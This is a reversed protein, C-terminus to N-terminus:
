SERRKRKLLDREVYQPSAILFSVIKYHKNRRALDLPTHGTQSQIYRTMGVIYECLNLYGLSAAFHLPTVGDYSVPNKDEIKEAIYTYVSLQGKSAAAHLITMGNNMAPNKGEIKEM